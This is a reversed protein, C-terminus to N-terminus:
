RTEEYDEAKVPEAPPGMNFPLVPKLKPPVWIKVKADKHAAIRTYLYAYLTAMLAAVAVLVQQALLVNRAGEERVSAEEAEGDKFNIRRTLLMVAPLLLMKIDFKPQTGDM